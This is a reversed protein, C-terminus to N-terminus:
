PCTEPKDNPSRLRSLAHLIPYTCCSRYIFSSLFMRCRYGIELTFAHSALSGKTARSSAEHRGGCYVEGTDRILMNFVRVTLAAM